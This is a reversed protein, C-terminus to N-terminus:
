QGRLARIISRFLSKQKMEINTHVGRGDKVEFNDSEYSEYGPATVIIKYVGEPVLFSYTGSKDTLQPNIQHYESANWLAFSSKSLDKEMLSVRAEPIRIEKDGMKEYIYGEPDIVAILRLEKSGLSVDKYKMITIIEYEGHVLPAEIKATYIGDGDRDEYEFEKLLMKEEIEIPESKSDNMGLIAMIPAGLLSTAPITKVGMQRKLDKLVLYGLVKSVPKDARVALDLEKGVITNIRQEPMGDEDISLFISHDILNGSKAFVIESPILKKQTETLENIAISAGGQIGAEKSLSPLVFKSKRLSDLDTVKSIGLKEFTKGLTPFKQALLRVEDPLPGLVFQNIENAPLLTWKGRLSIPTTRAVVPVSEESYIVEEQDSGTIISKVTKWVSAVVPITEVMSAKESTNPALWQSIDKMTSGYSSYINSTETTATTRTSVPRWDTQLYYNQTACSDMTSCNFTIWGVQDSWATGTFIGENSITVGGNEPSFDIWGTTEGYAYGSLIGSGNNTVGYDVTSCSSDNTCSLSIWGLESSWSYGTMGTDTIKVLGEDTGFDIWSGSESWAYRHVPDIEGIETSGFVLMPLFLLSITIISLISYAFIHIIKAIKSIM